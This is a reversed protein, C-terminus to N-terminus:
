VEFLNAALEWRKRLDALALEITQIQGEVQGMITPEQQVREDVIFSSMLAVSGLVADRIGVIQEAAFELDREEPDFVKLRKVEKGLVKIQANLNKTEEDVEKALNKELKELRLDMKAKDELIREIALQIDEHHDQDIPIAEGGITICDADVAVTGDFTLQRLKRLERYGVSLQQCTTLFSEGFAGLNALDENVKQRSMGVSDCFKEWNGIGPIDRYLKNLKVDKLWVLSSVAAFKAFMNSTQIQGRVKHCQALLREREVQEASRTDEAERDAQLTALEINTTQLQRDATAIAAADAKEKGKNKALVRLRRRLELEKTKTLPQGQIADIAANITVENAHELASVFNSDNAPTGVLWRLDNENLVKGKM